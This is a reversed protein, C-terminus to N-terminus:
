ASRRLPITPMDPLPAAVIAANRPYELAAREAVATRRRSIREALVFLAIGGAFPLAQGPFTCLVAVGFIFAPLAGFVLVFAVPWTIARM